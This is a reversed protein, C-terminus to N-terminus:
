KLRAGINIYPSNNIDEWHWGLLKIGRRDGCTVVYSGDSMRIVSGPEGYVTQPFTEAETIILKDDEYHTFSLPYPANLTRIHRYVIVAPEYWPIRSDIPLRKTCYSAASHDQEKAKTKGAVIDACVKGFNKSITEELNKLIDELYQDDYNTISWQHYVGGNDMEKGIKFLSSGITPEGNLLAWILPSQGRFKPLLSNHLGYIGNSISILSKESIIQYWGSGFVFDLKSREFFDDTEARTNAVCLELGNGKAFKTIEDFYSRPDERDDMTLVAALDNHKCLSKLIHFGQSKSGMFAITPNNHKKKNM